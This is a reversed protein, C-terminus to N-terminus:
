KSDFKSLLYNEGDKVAVAYYSVESTYNGSLGSMDWIIDVDYTLYIMFSKEHTINLIHMDRVMDLQAADWSRLSYVDDTLLPYTEIGALATEAEEITIDGFFADQMIETRQEILYEIQQEASRSAFGPFVSLVIILISPIVLLNRKKM